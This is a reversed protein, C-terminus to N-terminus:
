SRGPRRGHQQGPPRRSAGPHLHPTLTRRKADKAPARTTATIAANADYECMRGTGMGPAGRRRRWGCGRFFGNLDVDYEFLPSLLFPTGEVVDAADLWGELDAPLLEVFPLLVAPCQVDRRAYWV